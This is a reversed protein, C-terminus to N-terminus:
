AEMSLVSANGEQQLLFDLSRRHEGFCVSLYFVSFHISYQAFSTYVFAKFHDFNTLLVIQSFLASGIIDKCLM